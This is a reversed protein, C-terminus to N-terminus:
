GLVFTVNRMNNQQDVNRAHPMSPNCSATTRTSARFHKGGYHNVISHLCKSQGGFHNVISHRFEACRKKRPAFSSPNCSATTGTSARFLDPKRQFRLRVLARLLTSQGGYYTVISHLFMSAPPMLRLSSPNCSATSSTSTRFPVKFISFRYKVIARISKSPGGYYNVTSDLFMSVSKRTPPM